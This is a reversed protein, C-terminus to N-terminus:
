SLFFTIPTLLFKDEDFFYIEGPQIGVGGLTDAIREQDFYWYAKRNNWRGVVADKFPDLHEYCFAFGKWSEDAIITTWKDEPDKFAGEKIWPLGVNSMVPFTDTPYYRFEEPKNIPKNVFKYGSGNRRPLGYSTYGAPLGYQRMLRGGFALKPIASLLPSSTWEPDGKNRGIGLFVDKLKNFFDINTDAKVFWFRGSSLPRVSRIYAQLEPALPIRRMAQCYTIATHKWALRPDALLEPMYKTLDPTVKDWPIRERKILNKPEEDKLWADYEDRTAASITTGLYKLKSRPGEYADDTLYLYGLSLDNSSEFWVVPLLYDPPYDGSATTAGDCANQLSIQVAHGERTPLAFLQPYRGVWTGSDGDKYGTIKTNCGVVVDFNIDEDGSKLLTKVRFYTAYSTTNKTFTPRYASPILYWLAVAVAFVALLRNWRGTHKM